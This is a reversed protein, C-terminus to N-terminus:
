QLRIGLHSSPLGSVILVGAPDAFVPMALGPAVSLLAGAAAGERMGGAHEGGVEASDAEAGHDEPGAPRTHRLQTWLLEAGGSPDALPVGALGLRAASRV